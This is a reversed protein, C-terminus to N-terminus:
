ARGGEGFLEDATRGGGETIYPGTMTTEGRGDPADSLVHRRQGPQLSQDDFGRLPWPAGGTEPGPGPQTAVPKLGALLSRCRCPIAAAPPPQIARAAPAVNDENDARDKEKDARDEENDARDEEDPGRRSWEGPAV